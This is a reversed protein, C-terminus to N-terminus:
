FGVPHHLFLFSVSDERFSYLAFKGVPFYSAAVLSYNAADSKRKLDGRGREHTKHKMHNKPIFPSDSLGVSNLSHPLNKWLHTLETKM